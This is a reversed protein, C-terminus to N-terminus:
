LSKLLKRAEKGASSKPALKVAREFYLKARDTKGRKLLQKGLRLQSAARREAAAPSKAGKSSATKGRRTGVRKSVDPLRKAAFAAAATGPYKGVVSQYGSLAQKWKRNAEHRRASEVLQAQEIVAAIEKKERSKKLVADIKAQLGSLGKYTRGM